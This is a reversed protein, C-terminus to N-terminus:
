YGYWATKGEASYSQISMQIFPYFHQIQKVLYFAELFCWGYQSQKACITQEHVTIPFKQSMDSKNHMCHYPFLGLLFRPLDDLGSDQLAPDTDGSLHKNLKGHHIGLFLSQLRGWSDM